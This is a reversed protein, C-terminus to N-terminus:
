AHNGADVNFNKQSRGIGDKQDSDSKDEFSQRTMRMLARFPVLIGTEDVPAGHIQPFTGRPPLQQANGGIVLAL